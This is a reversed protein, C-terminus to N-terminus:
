RGSASTDPTARTNAASHQSTGPENHKHRGMFAMMLIHSLPCLLILGYSLVQPIPVKLVLIAALAAMPIACCLIMILLHRDIGSQNHEM